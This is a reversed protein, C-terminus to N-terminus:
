SGFTQYKTSRSSSRSRSQIRM